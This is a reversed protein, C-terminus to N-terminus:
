GRLYRPLAPTIGPCNQTDLVSSLFHPNHPKLHLSKSQRAPLPFASPQIIFSSPRTPVPIRPPHGLLGAESNVLIFAACVAATKRVDAWGPLVLLPSMFAGRGCIDLWVVIRDGRVEAARIPPGFRTHLGAM